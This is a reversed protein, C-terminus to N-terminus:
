EREQLLELALSFLRATQEGHLFRGVAGLHVLHGGRCQTGARVRVPTGSVMEVNPYHRAPHVGLVSHPGVCAVAHLWPKGGEVPATIWLLM